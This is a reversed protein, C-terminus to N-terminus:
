YDAKEFEDGGSGRIIAFDCCATGEGGQTTGLLFERVTGDTVCIVGLRGM